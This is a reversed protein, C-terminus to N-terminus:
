EDRQEADSPTLAEVGRFQEALNLGVARHWRPTPHGDHPFRDPPISTLDVCRIHQAVAWRAFAEVTAAPPTDDTRDDGLLLLAFQAGAALCARQMESLCAKTIRMEERALAASDPQGQEADVLRLFDWRGEQRALIPKRRGSRAIVELWSRRDASRPLHAPIWGYTVLSPPPQERLYRRLYLLAQVAGWGNVGANVVRQSTGAARNWVAPYAEEDAVGQGFTFSGGLCLVDITGAEQSPEGTNRFGRSGITYNAEYDYHRDLAAASPRHVWGLQPDPSYLGLPEPPRLRQRLRWWLWGPEAASLAFVGTAASATVGTITLLLLPRGDVRGLSVGLVLCTGALVLLALQLPGLGAAGLGLAEPLFAAVGM